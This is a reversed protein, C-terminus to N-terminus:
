GKTVIVSPKYKLILGIALASVSIWGLIVGFGELITENTLSFDRLLIGEATSASWTFPLFYNIFRLVAHQGEVPWM